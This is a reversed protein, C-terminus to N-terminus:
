FGVGIVELEQGDARAGFLGVQGTDTLEALVVVPGGLQDAEFLDALVADVELRDLLDSTLGGGLEDASELEEPFLRELAWPRFFQLQDAGIRLEFQGHDKRGGLDALDQGLDLGQIVADAQGGDVGTSEPQAFAQAQLHAVDIRLAHEEVDTAAFAIAIAVHGQGLAGQFQEALEPLGMAMGGEQERGFTLSSTLPSGGGGLRHAARSQLPAKAESELGAAHLLGRMHM